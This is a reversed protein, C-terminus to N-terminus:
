ESPSASTAHCEKLASEDLAYNACTKHTRITFMETASYAVYILSAKISASLRKMIRDWKGQAIFYFSVECHLQQM